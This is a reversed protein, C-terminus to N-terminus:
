KTSIKIYELVNNIEDNSLDIIEDSKKDLFENIEKDDMFHNSGQEIGEWDKDSKPKLNSALWLCYSLLYALVWLLSYYNFTFIFPLPHTFRYVFISFCNFYDMKDINIAYSTVYILYLLFILLIIFFFSFLRFRMKKVKKNKIHHVGSHVKKKM